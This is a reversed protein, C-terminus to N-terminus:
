EGQKGQEGQEGQENSSSRVKERQEWHLDGSSSVRGIFKRCGSKVAVSQTRSGASSIDSLLLISLLISVLAAIQLKSVKKKRHNLLFQM